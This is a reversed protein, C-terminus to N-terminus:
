FPFFRRKTIMYSIPIAFLLLAYPIAGFGVGLMHLPVSCSIAWPVIGSIVISSNEIDIALETNTAGADEYLKGLLDRCLISAITQNCFICIILTSSVTTAGFRGIKKALFALKDQLSSLMSTEKFIGSYCSSLLVIFCVTLMSTIGGGNLIKGLSMSQSTYGSLLISLTAQIQFGQMFITLGIGSAISAVFVWLIPVKLLPLFLMFLAPIICFINIKFNNYFDSMITADIASLPNAISLAGYAITVFVMPIVATKLMLKVNSYLDTSTLSAVLIASSAAPSTRDGFYVGSLIAGATILENVDGSRALAMLIVGLTGTVGYSTGLIYSLLCCLLFAILIFMSPTILQIGYYVFFAITGSSRWIATLAGIFLMFRIVILSEKGGTAAMKLLSAMSFGNFRGVGVFVFLGMLMSFLVSLGTALCFIMSLIFISFALVLPM